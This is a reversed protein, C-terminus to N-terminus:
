ATFALPAAEAPAPAFAWGAAAATRRQCSLRPTQVVIHNPFAAGRHCGPNLLLTPGALARWRLPQHVHGALVLRPTHRRLAAALDPDGGHCGSARAAVLSRAPPAHVVWLDAEGGKPRTTCGLPLISWGDMILRQGDVRVLPNTLRRLWYAPTWREAAADWELDHEGSCACLPRPYANLWDSVWAIQHRLPTPAARDLLDGSLVLLDHPPARDLLWDFWRQTYHLDSVHLITM